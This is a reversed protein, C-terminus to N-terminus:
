QRGSTKSAQRARSRPVLYPTFDQAKRGHHAASALFFPRHLYVFGRPHSHHFLDQCERIGAYFTSLRASPSRRSGHLLIQGSSRSGVALREEVRSIKPSECSLWCKLLSEQKRENRCQKQLLTCALVVVYETEQLIDDSPFRKLECLTRQQVKIPWTSWPLDENASESKAAFLM